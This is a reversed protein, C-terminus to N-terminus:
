NLVCASTNARQKEMSPVSYWNDTNVDYVECKETATNKSINGGIAFVFRDKVLALSASFRGMRMPEKPEVIMNPDIEWNSKSVLDSVLGGIM